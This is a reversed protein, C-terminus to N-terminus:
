YVDIYLGVEPFGGYGKPLSIYNSCVLAFPQSRRIPQLLHNHYSPGYHKCEPCELVVQRCDNDMGPWFYREHIHVKLSDPSTFHGITKHTSMAIEFALKRPICETRCVRDNAKTSIRWLKGQNIVFNKSCHMARRRESINSGADHGLLHLVIPEFFVDGRFRDALDFPLTSAEQPITNVSLINNRIGKTAEWDPLVSWESGDGQQRRRNQWMRSLGDAVPNEVGPRHRVDIINRSLISEKWRSHHVSMKDKLLCDRLARCDTEIEVQSGYIYPDFEDLCYKLAAFELLFPEYREESRSTRKSCYSIPHWQVCEKGTEDTHTFPQSLFGALGSASGDSTVRFPRGDFQPPKMVPEQALLVKLTVFAKRQEEGWKDKLSTAKLAQKYAGKRAKGGYAPTEVPIDRVLDTLPKAIRAYDCILRRFYNTLGLFGMLDQVDQPVPWNAVAAVKQLNPKIGDPGIMAGAFLVDTFFLKTKSPSLSLGRDRCRDFFKRLNQLKVKFNDGPLCIDDMWNVLERGIMDELAIAVMECFTTPAGTLGFPMRLYVYYGRGKVYFAAYPVSKDSLPIAYYGNSFDIVSAWRHGAAFEQKAKLDGQPFSPIQTAKNLATFAHCVRWKTKTESGERTEVAELMAEDSEGPERVEEWFPPLNHKICEANVKRLIDTRTAGIKGADKPQLNTSSLAKIFEGPVKQIIHAEEMDDLISFFWDKPAETIPRQGVKTPLKASPDIALHHKHWDVVKVESLSLAFADTYERIEEKQDNTLDPGLQLQELIEDVRKTDFPNTARMTKNEGRNIKFEKDTVTNTALIATTEGDESKSDQAMQRLYEWKTKLQTLRRESKILQQVEATEVPDEDKEKSTTIRAIM